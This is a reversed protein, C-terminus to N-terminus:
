NRDLWKQGNLRQLVGSILLNLSMKREDIRFSEMTSPTQNGLSVSFGRQGQLDADFFYVNFQHAKQRAQWKGEIQWCEPLSEYGRVTIKQTKFTLDLGQIGQAEIQKILEPLCDQAMFEPLPKDEVLPAKVKKAAPEASEPEATAEAAAPKAKKVGAPKVAPETSAIAETPTPDIATVAPIAATDTPPNSPTNEDAM